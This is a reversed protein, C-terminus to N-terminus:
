PEKNACAMTPQALRAIIEDVADRWPRPRYGFEREFRTTDLRSNAPRRAPTPYEATAIPIVKAGSASAIVHGALEHWSAAGDNVFHYTGGPWKQDQSFRRAVAVIAQAIDHASTPNGVQDAVVRVEDREAGLRLMTKLFNKGFPSIVWATRLIAARGGSGLVAEEGALKTRGYAGVPGTADDERYARGELMGDFVYDTSVHIMPVGLAAAARALIGPADGNIRRALDAEEEARDVATYAGCNAVLTVGHARLWSEMDPLDALDLEGRPPAILSVGEPRPTEALAQGVQGTGGTVLWVQPPSGLEAV